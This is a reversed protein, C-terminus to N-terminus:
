AFRKESRLLTVTRRTNLVSWTPDHFAARRDWFLRALASWSCPMRVPPAWPVSLHFLQFHRRDISFCGNSLFGYGNGKWLAAQPERAARGRPARSRNHGDAATAATRAPLTRRCARSVNAASNPCAQNDASLAMARGGERDSTTSVYALDDVARPGCTCARCRQKLV